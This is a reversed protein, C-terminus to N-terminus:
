GDVVSLYGNGFCRFNRSRSEVGREDVFMMDM